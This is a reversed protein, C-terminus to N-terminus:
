GVDRCSKKSLAARRGSLAAIDGCVARKGCREGGVEKGQGVSASRANRAVWLLRRPANKAKSRGKPHPAIRGHSRIATLARIPAAELSLAVGHVFFDGGQGEPRESRIVFDLRRPRVKEIFQSQMAVAGQVVLRIRTGQGRRIGRRKREFGGDVSQGAEKEVGRRSASRGVEQSGEDIEEMALGLANFAFEVVIFGRM